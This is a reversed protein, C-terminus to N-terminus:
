KWWQRKEEARAKIAAPKGSGADLSLMYNQWGNKVYKENAMFESISFDLDGAAPIKFDGWNCAKSAGGKYSTWRAVCENNSFGDAPILTDYALQGRENIYWNTTLKGKITGSGPQRPDEKLDVQCVLYGYKYKPYGENPELYRKAQQVTITGTFSCINNKVRTKGKVQYLYPNLPNKIVSTYHIYFRQYNAGIFGLPEPFDDWPDPAGVFYIKPAHWLTALNTKGAQAYYDAVKGQALCVCTHIFFCVLTLALRGPSTNIASKM